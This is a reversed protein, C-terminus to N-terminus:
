TAAFELLSKLSKRPSFREQQITPVTETDILTECLISNWIGGFLFGWSAKMIQPIAPCQMKTQQDHVLNAALVVPDKFKQLIM